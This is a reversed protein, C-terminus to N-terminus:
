GEACILAQWPDLRSLREYLKDAREVDSSEGVRKYLRYLKIWVSAILESSEWQELQFKDIQEALEELILRALRERQSSLCVEALLLKRQFRRRGNTEAAALRTMESLGKEVQGSRIMQEAEQWSGGVASQAEQLGSLSLPFRLVMPDGPQTSSNGGGGPDAPQPEAWRKKELIDSIARQMESLAARCNALNPAMDGFKEDIVRELARFEDYTEQFVSHLEEYDARKTEKVAHEFMEMSIHGDALAQDYTKKKQTELEGDADKCNAESGTRLADQQDVFGYDIGGDSRVTIPIAVIADVLKNSLWEFPGARDEPGDEMVPYLGKDWYRLMLERTVRLGDRLGAFGRLKIDAETLWLALQLDKSRDRLMSAALEKALRWDAAKREKKAWKGSDLGDDSRRAEKIRDWEATWRLDSGAPQDPSIPDLLEDTDFPATPM